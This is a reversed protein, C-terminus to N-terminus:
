RKERPQKQQLQQREMPVVYTCYRIPYLLYDEEDDGDDDRDDVGGKGEGERAAAAAAAEKDEDDM